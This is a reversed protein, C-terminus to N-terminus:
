GAHDCECGHYLGRRPRGGRHGDQLPGPGRGALFDFFRTEDNGAHPEGYAISQAERVQAAEEFNTDASAKKM